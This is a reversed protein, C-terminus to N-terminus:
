EDARQYVGHFTARGFCNEEDNVILLPGVIDM